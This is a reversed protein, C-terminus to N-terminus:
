RWLCCLISMRPRAWQASCNAFFQLGPSQDVLQGERPCPPTPAPVAFDTHTTRTRSQCKSPPAERYAVCAVLVIGRWLFPLLSPSPMSLLLSAPATDPPSLGCPLTPLAARRV